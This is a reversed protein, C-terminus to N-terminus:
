FTIKISDMCNIQMLDILSGILKRAENTEALWNEMREKEEKPLKKHKIKFEQNDKTERISDYITWVNKRTLVIEM